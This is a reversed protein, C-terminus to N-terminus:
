CPITYLDMSTEGASKAGDRREPVTASLAPTRDGGLIHLFITKFRELYPYPLALNIGSIWDGGTPKM